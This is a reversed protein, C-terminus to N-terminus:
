YMFVVSFPGVLQRLSWGPFLVGSIISPFFDRSPGNLGLDLIEPRELHCQSSGVGTNPRGYRFRQEAEPKSITTWLPFRRSSWSNTTPASRGLQSGLHQLVIM